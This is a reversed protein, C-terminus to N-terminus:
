RHGAAAPIGTGEATVVVVPCPPHRLCARAVPGIADQGASVAGGLVLLEAGAAQDLLVRAPLGDAVEVTVTILPAPGLVTRVADTLRAAAASRDEDKGHLRSHSAYPAIRRRAREYARVVQLRTGRLGAEGAAWKLAALSAHSLDVGVVIRPQGPTRDM